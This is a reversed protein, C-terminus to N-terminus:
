TKSYSCGLWSINRFLRYAVNSYYYAWAKAPLSGDNHGGIAHHAQKFEPFNKLLRGVNGTKDESDVVVTDGVRTVFPTGVILVLVTKLFMM